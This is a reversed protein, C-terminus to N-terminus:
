KKSGLTTIMIGKKSGLFDVLRSFLVILAYLFFLLCGVFIFLKPIWLPIALEGWSTDHSSLSICVGKFTMCTMLGFIAIILINCINDIISKGRTSFRSSLLTIRLHGGSEEVYALPIFIIFVLIIQSLDLTGPIHDGFITRVGVDASILFMLLLAGIAACFSSIFIIRNLFRRIKNKLKFMSTLM